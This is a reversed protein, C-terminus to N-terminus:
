NFTNSIRLTATVPSLATSITRLVKDADALPANAVYVIDGDEIEFRRALFFAGADTLDLNYVLPSLPGDRPAGALAEATARDEYRFVFVAGPDSRRDDLGGSEALAQELTVRESAFAARRPQSAAGLVTYSAESRLLAVVDGPQVPVNQAPDALLRSLRTEAQRGDRTLRVVVSHSPADTGGAAAIVDLVREGVDALPVRGGATADGLVTVSSVPSAARTVLAQPEIAKGQLAAEVAAGVAEPTRGAARIRGAYPVTIDGSPGIRQQPLTLGRPGGEPASFLGGEVAEWITVAVADGVRLRPGDGSDRPLPAVDPALTEAELTAITDPTLPVLVYPPPGEPAPAAGARVAEGTPGSKPAAACGALALAALIAAARRGIGQAATM